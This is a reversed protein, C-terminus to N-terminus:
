KKMEEKRIKKYIKKCLEPFKVGSIYGISLATLYNNKMALENWEKETPIIKTDTIRKTLVKMSEQYCEEYNSM